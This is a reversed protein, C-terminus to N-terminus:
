KAKLTITVELSGGSSIHVHQCDVNGVISESVTRSKMGIDKCETSGSGRGLEMDDLQDLEEDLTHCTVSESGGCM